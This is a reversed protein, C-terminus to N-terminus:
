RKESVMTPMSSILFFSYNTLQKEIEQVESMPLKDRAKVFEDKLTEPLNGLMELRKLLRYQESPLLTFVNGKKSQELIYIQAPAFDLRALHAILMLSQNREKVFQSDSKVYHPKFLDRVPRTVLNNSLIEQQNTEYSKRHICFFVEPVQKTLVFHRWRVRPGDYTKLFDVKPTGPYAAKYRGWLVQEAQLCENKALHNKYAEFQTAILFTSVSNIKRSEFFLIECAEKPSNGRLAHQREKLSLADLEKCGQEELELIKLLSPYGDYRGGLVFEYLSTFVVVALGLSFITKLM